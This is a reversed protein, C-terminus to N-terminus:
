DARHKSQQKPSEADTDAANAGDAAAAEKQSDAPEVRVAMERLLEDFIPTAAVSQTAM